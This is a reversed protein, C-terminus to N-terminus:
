RVDQEDGETYYQSQVKFMEAYKGNTQMLEDHTGMEAIKGQELFFIRDCFKTSSLRHSIFVSTKHHVLQNYKDYLESEALADLAATPEDLILCNAQKYLARALYLKQYQGGSFQVGDDEVDKNLCTLEKKPFSQVKDWLDAQKLCDELRQMDTKEIAKGSINEAITFSHTMADQFLISLHDMYANINLQNLDIGNILIRGSTPQYFGCLLKVMTTKGAGNTGVLAIKEGKELHFSVHDMIMRESNPYHFCVDEFDVSFTENARLDLTLGKNLNEKSELDMYKRVFSTEHLTKGVKAICDSIESFWTGFGSVIGLYLVFEAISMGQTLLYILYLYCGGDRLFQLLICVVDYLYYYSREKKALIANARRIKEYEGMLWNQAQYLRVDKGSTVDDAQNNFYRMKKSQEARTERNKDEYKRALSYIVYQILSIGLLIVILLVNLNGLMISYIILGLLNIFFPTSYQFFGEIGVWNSGLSEMCMISANQIEEKEFQALDMQMSKEMWDPFFLSLRLDIYQMQNRREIFISLAQLLGLVIFIGICTLSLELISVKQELKAVILAPIFVNVIPIAVTTLVQGLQFFVIKKDYHWAKNYIYKINSFNSYQKEMKNVECHVTYDLTDKMCLFLVFPVFEHM